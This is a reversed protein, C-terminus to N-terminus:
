EPQHTHCEYRDSGQYRATVRGEIERRESGHLYQFSCEPCTAKCHDRSLNQNGNLKRHGDCEHNAGDDDVLLNLKSCTTRYTIGSFTQNAYGCSICVNVIM